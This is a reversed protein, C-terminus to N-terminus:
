SALKSKIAEHPLKVRCSYLILFGDLLKGVKDQIQNLVQRAEQSTARKKGHKLGRKTYVPYIIRDITTKKVPFPQRNTANKKRPPQAASSHEYPSADVAPVVNRKREQVVFQGTSSVNSFQKGEVSLRNLKGWSQNAESMHAASELIETPLSDEQIRIQTSEQDNPLGRAMQEQSPNDMLSQEYLQKDFLSTEDKSGEEAFLDNKTSVIETSQM